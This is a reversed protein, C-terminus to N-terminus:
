LRGVILSQMFDIAEIVMDTWPATPMATAVHINMATAKYIHQAPMPANYGLVHGASTFAPIM